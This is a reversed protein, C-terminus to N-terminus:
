DAQKNKLQEIAKELRQEITTNDQPINRYAEPIEDPSGVKINTTYDRPMWTTWRPRSDPWHYYLIDVVQDLLPTNSDIWGSCAWAKYSANYQIFLGHQEINLPPFGKRFCFDAARHLKRDKVDRRVSYQMGKLLNTEAIGHAREVNGTSLNRGIDWSGYVMDALISRAEMLELRVTFYAKAMGGLALTFVGTTVCLCACTKRNIHSTYVKM